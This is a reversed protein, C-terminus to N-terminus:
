TLSFKAALANAPRREDMTQYLPYIDVGIEEIENATVGEERMLGLTAEISADYNGNCAYQKHYNRTICYVAGLGDTVLSPAFAPTVLELGVRVADPRGLFGMEAYDLALLGDRADMGTWLNRVTAGKMLVDFPAIHTCSIGPRLAEKTTELDARRLVCAAATAGIAAFMTHPSLVFKPPKAAAVTRSTIEYGVAFAALVETLASELTRGLALAGPLVYAGSHATAYRYGDDLEIAPAQTGNALAAHYQDAKPFGVRLLIATREPAANREVFRALNVNEPEESGRLTAGLVDLFVRRAANQM